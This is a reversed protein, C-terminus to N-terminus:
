GLALVPDVRLCNGDRFDPAVEFHPKFRIARCNCGGAVGTM